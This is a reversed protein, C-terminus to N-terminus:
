NIVKIKEMAIKIKPREKWMQINNWQISVFNLKNDIYNSDKKTTNM